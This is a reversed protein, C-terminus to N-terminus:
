GTFCATPPRGGRYAEPSTPQRQALKPRGLGRQEQSLGSTRSLCVSTLCFCRKIGLRNPVLAYCSHELLRYWNKKPLSKPAHGLTVYSELSCFSFTINTVITTTTTTTTISTTMRQCSNWATNGQNKQLSRPFPVVHASLFKEFTSQAASASAVRIESFKNIIPSIFACIPQVLSPQHFFIMLWSSVAMFVCSVQRGTILSPQSHCHADCLRTLM